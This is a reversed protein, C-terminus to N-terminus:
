AIPNGLLGYIKTDLIHRPRIFPNRFGHAPVVGSHNRERSSDSITLILIYHVSICWVSILFMTRPLSGRTRSIKPLALSNSIQLTLNRVITHLLLIHRTRFDIRNICFKLYRFIFIKFNLLLSSFTIEFSIIPELTRRSKEEEREEALLYIAFTSQQSIKATQLIAKGSKV